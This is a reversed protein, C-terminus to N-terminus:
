ASKLILKETTNCTLIYPIPTVRITAICCSWIAKVSVRIMQEVRLGEIAWGKAVREQLPHSWQKDLARYQADAEDQVFKRLKQLFEPTSTKM